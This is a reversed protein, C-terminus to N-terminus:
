PTLQRAPIPNVIDIKIPPSAKSSGARSATVFIPMKPAESIALTSPNTTKDRDPFYHKLDVLFTRQQFDSCTNRDSNKAEYLARDVLAMLSEPTDEDLMRTVGFSATISTPIPMTAKETDVRLREVLQTARDFDTNSVLLIFDEGGFRAVIDEVRSSSKLLQSFCVLVQDGTLHGHGDNVARFYSIAAIIISLPNKWRRSLSMSRVMNEELSRRNALGTLPDERILRGITKNAEILSIETQKRITADSIFGELRVENEDPASVVRGEEMLWREAGDKTFILYVVQFSKRYTTAHTIETAIPGFDEPHLLKQWLLSSEGVVEGPAYGTVHLCGNSVFEMSWTGNWRYRYAIGPLNQM